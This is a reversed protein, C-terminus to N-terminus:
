NFSIAGSRFSRPKKFSLSSYLFCMTFDFLFFFLSFLFFALLFLLFSFFDFLVCVLIFSPLSSV